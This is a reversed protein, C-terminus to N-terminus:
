WRRRKPWEPAAHGALGNPTQAQGNTSTAAALQAHAPELQEELHGIREAQAELRTYLPEVLARTDGAM